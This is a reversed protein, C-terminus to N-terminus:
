ENARLKSIVWSNFDKTKAQEFLSKVSTKEMLRRVLFGYQRYDGRIPNHVVDEFERKFNDWGFSLYQHSAVVAFGEYFWVPGMGDENGNLYRIHLLHALEHAVLKQYFDTDEADKPNLAAIQEKPITWFIGREPTAVFSKPIQYSSPLGSLERLKSDFAEKNELLVAREILPKNIILGALGHEKAFALLRAQGDNVANEFEMKQQLAINRPVDMPIIQAGMAQSGVFFLILFIIAAM